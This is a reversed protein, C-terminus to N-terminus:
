HQSGVIPQFDSDTALQHMATPATRNFRAFHVGDYVQGLGKNVVAHAVQRQHRDLSCGRKVEVRGTQPRQVWAVSIWQAAMSIGRSFDHRAGCEHRACVQVIAAGGDDDRGTSVAPVDCLVQVKMQIYGVFNVDAQLVSCAKKVTSSSFCFFIM